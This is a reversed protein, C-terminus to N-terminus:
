DVDGSASAGNTQSSFFMPKRRLCFLQPRTEKLSTAELNTVDIVNFHETLLVKVQDGDPYLRDDCVDFGYKTIQQATVDSGCSVVWGSYVQSM